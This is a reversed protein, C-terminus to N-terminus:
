KKAKKGEKIILKEDQYRIGKGKYNDPKRLMRIKAATQGVLQKDIGKVKIIMVKQNNISFNPTEVEFSIGEPPEFVVPHSYGLNFDLNKGKLQVNYITGVLYLVKEFGTTVGIIMNNVLSKALGQMAYSKNNKREGIEFYLLGDRNVIDIDPVRKISLKGKPGEVSVTEDQINIKVNDPIKIPRKGYRAM